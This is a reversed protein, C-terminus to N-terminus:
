QNLKELEKKAEEDGQRAALELYQIAKKSDSEVGQGKAYMMGLTYQADAVGQEAALELYDKAKKYDQKVGYGAHYMLGLMAQAYASGQEAEKELKSVSEKFLADVSSDPTSTEAAVPNQMAIFFAFFFILLGALLHHYYTNMQMSHSAETLSYTQAQTTSM